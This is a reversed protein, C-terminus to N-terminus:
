GIVQQVYREGVTVVVESGAPWDIAKEVIGDSFIFGGKPMQSVVSLPSGPKIRGTIIETGTTPSDFPERVVFVLENATRRPLYSLKSNGNERVIGNIMNMISSLWGTTGVGTAVIIGSSSQNESESGFSMKYLASVQDSRGIFLDNIAWITEENNIQAKIFPLLDVRHKGACINAIMEGVMEPKFLMLKGAVTKPDPNITLIPQDKAYKALNVFLGDPGCVIILDTDRFLFNPLDERDVTTSPMDMPIQKSIVKLALKYAEDKSKYEDITQGQSELLFKVAGETHNLLVLEELATRKTVIVVRNIKQM